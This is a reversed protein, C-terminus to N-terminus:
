NPQEPPTSTIRCIVLRGVVLFDVIILGQKQIISKEFNKWFGGLGGMSGCFTGGESVLEMWLGGKGFAVGVSLLGLWFGVLGVRDGFYASM